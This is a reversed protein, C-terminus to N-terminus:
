EEWALDAPVAFGLGEVNEGAIGGSTIGILNGESDFLGGGSSGSSIAADTQILRSDGGQRLQSIVGVSLSLDLGKPSGIAYVSEGVKLTDFRRINAPIGQLEDVDLLCFDNEEDRRHIDARFLTDTTARRNDHKFVVIDGDEEDEVVHNNTAVMSSGVIVGSGQGSGTRIVVVSRWVKDFVAEAVNALKAPSSMDVGYKEGIAKKMVALMVPKDEIFDWATSGSLNRLDPSAGANILIKIIEPDGHAALMLTTMGNDAAAANPNAGAALLRKTLDIRVDDQLSNTLEIGLLQAFQRLPSAAAVMLATYGGSATAEPNAGADLLIQVTEIHGRQVASMLATAGDKDTADLNAKDVILTEAVESRGEQAAVMLATAGEDTFADIDAGADLLIKAFKSHGTKAALMLATVGKDMVADMDAGAALLMKAVDPRGTKAALMLATAGENSEANPDAGAGLLVKVIKSYGEQAACMLATAGEDTSANPNVDVALLTKIIEFRGKAAAVVLATWGNGSAANPNVGDALLQKVKALNGNSTADLLSQTDDSSRFLRAIMKFM